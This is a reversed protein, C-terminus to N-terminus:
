ISVTGLAQSKFIPNEIDLEKSNEELNDGSNKQGAEMIEHIPPCYVAPNPYEQCNQQWQKQVTEERQRFEELVAYDENSDQMNNALLDESRDQTSGAQRVKGKVAKKRRCFYIGVGIVIILGLCGLLIYLWLLSSSDSQPGYIEILRDFSGDFVTYYYSMFNTGLVFAGGYSSSVYNIGSANNALAKFNLTISSVSTDTNQANEVYIQPVIPITSGQLSLKIDPLSSIKGQYSCVPKYGSNSCTISLEKELNALVERYINTPLGIVDTNLDFVLIAIDMGIVSDKIAITSAGANVQWNDDSELSAVQLKQAGKVFDVEFAIYGTSAYQDLSITFLDASMFNASSANEIGMGIIGSRSSSYSMQANSSCSNALLANATLRWDKYDMYVEVSSAYVGDASFDLYDKSFTVTNPNCSYETCNYASFNLCNSTALLTNSTYLGVLMQATNSDSNDSYSYTLDVPVYFGYDDKLLTINGTKSALFNSFPFMASDKSSSFPILSQPLSYSKELLFNLILLFILHLTM